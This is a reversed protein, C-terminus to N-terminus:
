AIQVVTMGTTTAPTTYLDPSSGEAPRTISAGQVVAPESFVPAGVVVAGGGNDVKVSTPMAAADKQTQAQQAQPNLKETTNGTITTRTYTGDDGFAGGKVCVVLQLLLAFLILSGWLASFLVIWLTMNGGDLIHIGTYIQALAFVYAIRGNWRHVENWAVRQPTVKTGSGPETGHPRILGLFVQFCMAAFVYFGAGRHFANQRKTYKDNDFKNVAIAFGAIILAFGILVFVRHLHLWLPSYQPSRFFRAFIIGVPLFFGFAISMLAGHAWEYHIKQAPTPAPTAAAASATSAGSSGSTTSSSSSQAVTAVALLASLLFLILLLRAFVLARSM